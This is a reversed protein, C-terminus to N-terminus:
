LLDLSLLWVKFHWLLRLFPRQSSFNPYTTSFKRRKLFAVCSIGFKSGNDLYLAQFVDHYFRQKKAVRSGLPNILWGSFIKERLFSPKPDFVVWHLLNSRKKFMKVWVLNDTLGNSDPSNECNVTLGFIFALSQLAMFTTPITTPLQFKSINYFIEEEKFISSCSIGFKSGNDLYLAQFM